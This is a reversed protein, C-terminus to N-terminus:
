KNYSGIIKCMDIFEDNNYVHKMKHIMACILQINNKEYGIKDDIRNVVM